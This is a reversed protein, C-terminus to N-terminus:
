LEANDDTSDSYGYCGELGENLMRQETMGTVFATELMEWTPFDQPNMKRVAKAYNIARTDDNIYNNFRKEDVDTLAVQICRIIKEDESEALETFIGEVKKKQYDTMTPYLNKILFELEEYKKKYDEM